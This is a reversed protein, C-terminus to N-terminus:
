NSSINFATGKKRRFGLNKKYGESSKYEKMAEDYGEQLSISASAEM